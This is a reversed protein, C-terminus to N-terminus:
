ADASAATRRLVGDLLDTAAKVKSTFLVYSTSRRNFQTFHGIRNGVSREIRWEWGKKTRTGVAYNGSKAMIQTTHTARYITGIKEGDLTVNFMPQNDWNTDATPVIFANEAIQIPKPM